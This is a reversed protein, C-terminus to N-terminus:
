YRHKTYVKEFAMLTEQTQHVNYEVVRGNSLLLNNMLAKHMLTGLKGARVVIDIEKKLLEDIQKIVPEAEEFVRNIEDEIIEDLTDIYSFYEDTTPAKVIEIREQNFELTNELEWLKQKAKNFAKFDNDKKAKNILEKAKNIEEKTQEQKSTLEDLEKEKGNIIDHIKKEFEELRM